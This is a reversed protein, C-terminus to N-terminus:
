GCLADQEDEVTDNLPASSSATEGFQPGLNTALFAIFQGFEGCGGGQAAAPQGVAMSVSMLGALVIAVVKRKM